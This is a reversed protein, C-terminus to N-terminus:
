VRDTERNFSTTLAPVEKREGRQRLPGASWTWIWTERSREVATRSSMGWGDNAEGGWWSAENQQEWSARRWDPIFLHISDQRETRIELLRLYSADPSKSSGPAATHGETRQRRRADSEVPRAVSGFPTEALSQSTNRGPPKTKKQPTVTFRARRGLRRPECKALM